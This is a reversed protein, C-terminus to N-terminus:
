ELSTFLEYIKDQVFSENKFSPSLWRLTMGSNSTLLYLKDNASDVAFSPYNFGGSISAVIKSDKLKSTNIQIFDVLARDTPNTVFFLDNVYKFFTPLSSCNKFLM